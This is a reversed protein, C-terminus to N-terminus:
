PYQKFVDSLVKNRVACYTIHPKHEPWNELEGLGMPTIGLGGHISPMCHIPTTGSSLFGLMKLTPQLCIHEKDQFPVNDKSELCHVLEDQARSLPVPDFAM